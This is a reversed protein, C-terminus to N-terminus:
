VSTVTLVDIRPPCNFRLPLGTMGIGTTTWSYFTVPMATTTTSLNSLSNVVTPNIAIRQKSLGQTTANGTVANVLWPTLWAINVQGGHTQGAIVLTRDNLYQSHQSNALFQKIDHTLIITPQPSHKPPVLTSPSNIGDSFGLLKITQSNAHTTMAIPTSDELLTIGLTQLVVPLRENLLLYDAGDSDHYRQEIHHLQETDAESLVSFCPKNLSKLVLLKGMIDASSHYLWDGTVLIADVDLQNLRQVVRELQRPNSFMGIHVDGIVALKISTVPKATTAESMPKGLYISQYRVQLRNPEIWTLYLYVLALVATMAYFLQWDIWCHWLSWGWLWLAWYRAYYVVLQLWVKIKQAPNTYLMKLCAIVAVAIAIWWGLQSLWSNGM